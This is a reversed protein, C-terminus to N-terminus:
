LLLIGPVSPIAHWQHPLTDRIAIAKAGPKAGTTHGLSSFTQIGPSCFFM